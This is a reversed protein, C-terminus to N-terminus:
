NNWKEKCMIKIGRKYLLYAVTAPAIGTLAGAILDIIATSLNVVDHQEYIDRIAKNACIREQFITLNMEFWVKAKIIIQKSTFLKFSKEDKLVEKGIRLFIEDETLLKLENINTINM